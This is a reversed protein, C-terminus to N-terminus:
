FRKEFLFSSVLEAAVGGTDKPMAYSSCTPEPTSSLAVRWHPFQQIASDDRAFSRSSRRVGVLSQRGKRLSNVRNVRAIRRPCRASVMTRPSDEQLTQQESVVTPGVAIEDSAARVLVGEASPLSHDTTYSQRNFNECVSPTDTQNTWRVGVYVGHNRLDFFYKRRFALGTLVGIEPEPAVDAITNKPRGLVGALVFVARVLDAPPHQRDIFRLLQYLRAFDVLHLSRVSGKLGDSALKSSAPPATARATSERRLTAPVATGVGGM